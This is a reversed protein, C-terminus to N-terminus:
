NIILDFKDDSKLLTDINRHKFVLECSKTSLEFALLPFTLTNDIEQMLRINLADYMSPTSGLISIDTCDEVLNSQPLSQSVAHGKAALPKLLRSPLFTVKLESGFLVLIRAAQLHPTACNVIFLTIVAKPRACVLAVQLRLAVEAELFKQRASNFVHLHITGRVGLLSCTWQLVV